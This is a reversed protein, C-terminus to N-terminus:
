EMKLVFYYGPNWAQCLLYNEGDHRHWVANHIHDALEVGLDEKPRITSLVDFTDADLIYIPAARGEKPDDLSGVVAYWRDDIETFDIGCPKSGAPLAYAADVEGKLTTLEFRSHPRDAIALLDRAPARNLGHATGFKGLESPNDTKGGFIGTWRQKILDASSIYNAGYGDAVYLDSGVLVTDTPRFAVGEDRYQDFEPRDFVYEVDGALTLVVVKADENAPLFLRTKGDFAGIKTSHFNLPKLESPLEITDQTGLDPSIRILGYGPMGYYAQGYGERKDIAFGGHLKVELGLAKDPVAHLDECYSFMFPSQGSKKMECGKGANENSYYDYKVAEPYREFATV